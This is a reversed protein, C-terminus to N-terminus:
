IDKLILFANIIPSSMEKIYQIKRSNPKPNPIISAKTGNMKIESTDKFVKKMANVEALDGAPTSTAHCNVYNVQVFYLFIINGVFITFDHLIKLTLTKVEEPSVGSDELSKAICSSVGFGDSRPSTIHHADCTVSGGLYEAIVTAERKRASELSEM